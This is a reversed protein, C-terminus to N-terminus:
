DTLATLIMRVLNLKALEKTPLFQSIGQYIDPSEMWTPANIDTQERLLVDVAAILPALISLAFFSILKM